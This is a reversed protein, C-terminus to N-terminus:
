RVTRARAVLTKLDDTRDLVKRLFPEAKAQTPLRRCYPAEFVDVGLAELGQRMLLNLKPIPGHIEPHAVIMLIRM